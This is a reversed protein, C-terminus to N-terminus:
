DDQRVFKRRYRAPSDGIFKNFQQHFFPMSEYGCAFGIQAVSWDTDLLMRGAVNIRYENLFSFFPRGMMKSFFRSFSQESLNVLDALERLYIKRHYHQSVFAHVSAMRSSYEAPLNDVFRRESLYTYPCDALFSLISLLALYLKAGQLTPLRGVEGLLPQVYAEDFQVGRGAHWFMEFMAKLEPVQRFIGANWQIVTSRAQRARDTHNKWCHPLNGGLLVLEGAEFPGVYDGIFKTGSSEQIWTLEYQPHFHWPADFDQKCYHFALISQDQQIAVQELEAKM